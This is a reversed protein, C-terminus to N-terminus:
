IEKWEIPKLFSLCLVPKTTKPANQDLIDDELRELAREDFKIRLRNENFSYYSAQLSGLLHVTKQEGEISLGKDPATLSAQIKIEEPSNRDIIIKGEKKSDDLFDKGTSFIILESNSDKVYPIGNVWKVGQHILHSSLTIKDSSIITLKVGSLVSPIEEKALIIQGSRDKVAGGFSRIEGNVIIIGLPVLNYHFTEEPTSFITKALSPSFSLTWHGNKTLFSVVQFDEDIAMLMEELDGQIFIGGLGMSDKILYVGDTVPENSSELGLAARLLFNPLKQPPFFSIKLAKRLQSNAEEPVLGGESFGAQPPISNKEFPLFTIKNKEMFNERQDPELRRDILLPFYSLPLNGAFIGLAAVFSSERIEKFNKLKGEARVEMKYIAHFYDETELIEELNFDASSEWSLNEWSQSTRLPPKSGLIKELLDLGKSRANERLENTEQGSLPSPFNTESILSLLHNFGTKIGNESAYILLTSNKKYASTKLYIQALFLMGLGLTSFVFFLFLCILTMAGKRTKGDHDIATPWLRIKQISLFKM